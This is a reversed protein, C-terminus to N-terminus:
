DFKGRLTIAYRTDQVTSSGIHDGPNIQKQTLNLKENTLNNAELGLSFNDTLNFFISGDWQGYDNQFVPLRWVIGNNNGNFGNPGISVLFEDRWTYALRSSILDDEYMLTVTYSNESLGEVPLSDPNFPTGDTDLPITEDSVDTSSDIKTYSAEVGFGFDFFHRWGLEWGDIDATNQNAPRTVVYDFGNYTEVFPQNRLFGDINKKFLNLWASGVDNYYWEFSLDFQDAEMAKLNPNGGSASGNYDSLNTSGNAAGDNLNVFLQTYSQMDSFNPRAIAKSWAFRTLFGDIVEWRLNLSPLTNSYTNSVAIPVDGQNFTPQIAPPLGSADPFRIFGSAVNKTEVWRVGINGDVGIDDWGFRLMAYLSQVTEEQINRHNPEILTPAFFTVNDSGGGDGNPDSAFCCQYFPAAAQHIAYYTDPYGEALSRDPAIVSGPVAIDGRFFNSFTNAHVLDEMGFDVVSPLPGNPLAWGRMWPQIVARWNYGTNITTSDRDAYRSGFKVSKLFPSDDFNYEADVRWALQDAKNDDQHDMTFAFHYNSPDSMFAADTTIDPVGGANQITIYPMLLGAAVTSDLGDTTAEVYQIDTSLNWQDSLQWEAGTSIDTTVSNRNAFRIDSGMNIGGNTPDTLTGSVFVGNANYVPDAFNPDGTAPVVTYPDNDVFLADEDWTFDYESRFVTLFYETDENPSVQLAAYAGKRDRDTRETRWDAGRPIYVNNGNDDYPFFPRNFVVDIRGQLESYALDVLLGVEGIGTDWRNSYLASFGPTTEEIFNQYNASATFAILQNDIDFPMRTRLNVTGGLGGEIMEATQNKYVDVGALLEPPVDEFSLSRGGNATFGDRGNIEGRVQTLGRVAVGSGEGSFHEPDGRSVFRDITVGPIRQLTETVSRDPLNAIDDAVISDVFTEADFKIDQASQLSGRLGTVVVEEIDNDTGTTDQASAPVAVLGAVTLALLSRGIRKGATSRAQGEPLLGRKEDPKVNM